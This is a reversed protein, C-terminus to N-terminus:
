STFNTTNSPIGASGCSPERGFEDAFLFFDDFDIKGSGSLDINAPDNLAENVEQGFVDALMFFDVYNVANDNNFDACYRTETEVLVCRSGDSSTQYGAPCCFGPNLQLGCAFRSKSGSPNNVDQYVVNDNVAFNTIDLVTTGTLLSAFKKIVGGTIRIGFNRSEDAGILNVNLEGRGPYRGVAKIKFTCIGDKCDGTKEIVDLPDVGRSRLESFECPGCEGGCSYDGVRIEGPVNVENDNCTPTFCQVNQGFNDAFLFFDDFDIVNNNGLDFKKNGVNAVFGFNDAFLFFDDFNVNTDANFDPCGTEKTNIKVANGTVRSLARRFDGELRAVNLEYDNLVGLMERKITAKDSGPSLIQVMKLTLFEYAGRNICGREVGGCSAGECFPYVLCRDDLICHQLPLNSCRDYCGNGGCYGSLCEPDQSCTQDINLTGLDAPNVIKVPISIEDEQNWCYCGQNSPCNLNGFFFNHVREFIGAPLVSVDSCGGKNKGINSCRNECAITPPNMPLAVGGSKEATGGAKEETTVLGSTGPQTLGIQSTTAQGECIAAYGSVTIKNACNFNFDDIYVRDPNNNKSQLKLCREYGSNRCVNNGVSGVPIFVFPSALHLCDRREKVWTRGCGDNCNLDGCEGRYDSSSWSCSESPTCGTGQPQQVAQKGGCRSGYVLNNDICCEVDSGGINLLCWQTGGCSELRHDSECIGSAPIRYAADVGIAFIAIVFLFLLSKGSKLM